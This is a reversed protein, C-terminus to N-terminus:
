YLWADVIGTVAQAPWATGDTLHFVTGQVTTATKTLVVKFSLTTPVATGTEQFHVSLVGAALALDASDLVAFVGNADTTESIQKVVHTLPMGAVYAGSLNLYEGGIVTLADGSPVEVWAAGDWYDIRGPADDLMSLTNDDPAITDATRAAANAYHRVTNNIGDDSLGLGDVTTTLFRDPDEQVELPDGVSGDGLMSTDTSIAGPAATPATAAVWRSTATDWSLVQGNTPTPANVDPLDDLKATSAFTVELTFPMGSSGDGTLSLDFVSNDVTEISGGSSSILFPNQASGDGTITIGAGEALVCSCTSGQCCRAM